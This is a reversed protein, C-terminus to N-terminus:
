ESKEQVKDGVLECILRAFVGYERDFLLVINQGNSICLLCAVPGSWSHFHIPVIGPWFSVQSALNQRHSGLASFNCLRNYSGSIMDLHNEPIFGRWYEWM